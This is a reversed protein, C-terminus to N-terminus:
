GGRGIGGAAGVENTSGRRRVAVRAAQAGVVPPPIAVAISHAIVGLAAIVAALVRTVARDSIQESVIWTNEGPQGEVASM